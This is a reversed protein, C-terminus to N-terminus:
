AMLSTCRNVALRWRVEIVEERTMRGFHFEDMGKAVVLRGDHQDSLAKMSAIQSHSNRGASSKRKRSRGRTFSCRILSSRNISSAM